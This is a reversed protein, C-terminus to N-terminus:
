SSSTRASELDFVHISGNAEPEESDSNATLPDVALYLVKGELATLGAYRGV